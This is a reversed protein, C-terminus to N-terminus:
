STATSSAPFGAKDLASQLALQYSDSTYTAGSVADIQASQAQLASAQLLPVAYNNIEVSKGDNQPVQLADVATIKGGSVTVKLQVNGYQNAEVASTVTKTTSASATQATSPSSSATATSTVAAASAGAATPAHGHFSLTAALGVATASLVIPARNM